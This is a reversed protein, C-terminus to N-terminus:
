KLTVWQATHRGHTFNSQDLVKGTADDHGKTIPYTESVKGSAYLNVSEVEVYHVDWYTVEMGWFSYVPMGLHHKTTSYGIKPFPDGVHAQGYPERLNVRKVGKFSLQSLLILPDQEPCLVVNVKIDTNMWACKELWWRVDPPDGDMIKHNIDRELSCVTLSMKDWYWEDKSRPRKIGNTRLGIKFGEAHLYSALYPWKKYLLPDTNTGTINIERVGRVRCRTMFQSMGELPYKDLNDYSDLAMMHQGICFYCSRNCRGSLHINGFWHSFNENSNLCGM